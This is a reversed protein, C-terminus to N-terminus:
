IWKDLSRGGLGSKAQCRPRLALYGEKKEEGLSGRMGGLPASFTCLAPGTERKNVINLFLLAGLRLNLGDILILNSHVQVSKADLSIPM